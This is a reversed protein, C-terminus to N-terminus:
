KDKVRALQQKGAVSRANSLGWALGSRALSDYDGGGFGGLLGQWVFKEASLKCECSRKEAAYSTLRLGDSRLASTVWGLGTRWLVAFEGLEGGEGQDARRWGEM